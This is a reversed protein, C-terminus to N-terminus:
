IKRPSLFAHIKQDTWQSQDSSFTMIEPHINPQVNTNKNQPFTPKNTNLSHAVYNQFEDSLSTIQRNDNYSDAILNSLTTARPRIIRDIM